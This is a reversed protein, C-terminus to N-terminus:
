KCDSSSSLPGGLGGNIKVGYENSVDYSIQLVITKNKKNLEAAITVDGNFNNSSIKSTIVAMERKELNQFHSTSAPGLMLHTGKFSENSELCDLAIEIADQSNVELDNAFTSFSTLILIALLFIKM